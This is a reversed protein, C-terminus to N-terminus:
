FKFFESYFVYIYNQIYKSLRPLGKSYFAFVFRRLDREVPILFQSLFSCHEIYFNSYNPNILIFLNNTFVYAIYFNM